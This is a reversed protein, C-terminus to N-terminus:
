KLQAAQGRQPEFNLALYMVFPGKAEPLPQEAAGRIRNNKQTFEAFVHGFDSCDSMPYTNRSYMNLQYVECLIM